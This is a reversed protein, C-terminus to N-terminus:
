EVKIFKSFYHGKKAIIAVTYFGPKFSSLDLSLRKQKNNITKILQGQLNYILIQHNQVINDPINITIRQFAPNPSITIQPKIQSYSNRTATLICNLTDICGDPSLKIIIGANGFPGNVDGISIISGSSLIETGFFRTKDNGYISDKRLWISDGDPSFKYHVGRSYAPYEVLDAFGSAIFNSDPTMELDQFGQIQGLYGFYKEWVINFDKDMRFIMPRANYLFGISNFEWTLAICLWSSDPLLVHKKVFGQIETSDSYWDWLQNGSSDIALFYSSSWDPQPWYPDDWEAYDGKAGCIVFKNNDVKYMSSASESFELNGYEKRWIEQGDLNTRIVLINSALSNNTQEKAIVIFFGNTLELLTSNAFYIDSQYFVLVLLEFNNSVKMFYTKGESNGLIAYGDQTKVIKKKTFYSTTLTKTSDVIINSHLVNGFTDIKFFQIGQRDLSDFGLGYFILTDNDNLVDMFVGREEASNDFVQLFGQQCFSTLSILLIFYTFILKKM